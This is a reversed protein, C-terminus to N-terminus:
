AEDELEVPTHGLDEIQECLLEVREELGSIRDLHNECARCPEPEEPDNMFVGDNVMMQLTEKGFRARYFQGNVLLGSGPKCPQYYTDFTSM